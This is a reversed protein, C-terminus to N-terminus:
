VYLQFQLFCFRPCPPSGCLVQLVYTATFAVQSASARVWGLSSIPSCTESGSGQLCPASINIPYLLLSTKPMLFPPQLDLFYWQLNLFPSTILAKGLCIYTVHKKMPHTNLLPPAQCSTLTSNKARQCWFTVFCPCERMGLQLILPGM